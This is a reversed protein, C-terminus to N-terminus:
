HTASHSFQVVAWNHTPRVLRDTFVRVPQVGTMIGEDPFARYWKRAFPGELETKTAGSRAADHGLMPWDAFLPAAGRAFLLVFAILWCFRLRRDLM